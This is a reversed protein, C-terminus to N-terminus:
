RVKIDFSQLKAKRGHISESWSRAAGKPDQEHSKANNLPNKFGMVMASWEYVEGQFEFATKHRHEEDIEIHQFADKDNLAM